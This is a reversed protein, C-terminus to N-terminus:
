TFVDAGCAQVFYGTTDTTTVGGPTTISLYSQAVSGGNAWLWTLPIADGKRLTVSYSGGFNGAGTRSAKFATNDDNWDSYAVDGVWLYGWNDIADALSTFTYTGTEKAIFFGNFLLASQSSEFSKRRDALTLLTSGTPWSPTSFSLSQLVGRFEPNKKKFFTTTFGSNALYANFSSTYKRYSIGNSAIETAVVYATVAKTSVTSVIATRTNRVTVVATKTIKVSPRSSFSLCGCAQSIQAAGWSEPIYSPRLIDNRKDVAATPPKATYASGLCTLTSTSATLTITSTVVKVETKTVHDVNTFKETVIATRTEEPLLLYPACFLAAGVNLRLQGIAVSNTICFERDPAASIALPLFFFISLPLHM